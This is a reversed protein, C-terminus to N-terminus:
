NRSFLKIDKYRCFIKRINRNPNHSKCGPLGGEPVGQLGGQLYEVPDVTSRREGPRATPATSLSTLLEDDVSYSEDERRATDTTKQICGLIYIGSLCLKQRTSKPRHNIKQFISGEESSNHLMSQYNTVSTEPCYIKLLLDSKKSQQLRSSKVALNDRFM